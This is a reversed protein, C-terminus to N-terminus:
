NLFNLILNLLYFKFKIIIQMKNKIKINKIM